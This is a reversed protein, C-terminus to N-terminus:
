ADEGVFRLLRACRKGGVTLPRHEVVERAQALLATRVEDATVEVVHSGHAGNLDHQSRRTKHANTMRQEGYQNPWLERVNARRQAGLRTPWLERVVGDGDVVAYSVASLHTYLGLLSKWPSKIWYYPQLKM